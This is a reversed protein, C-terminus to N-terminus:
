VRAACRSGRHSPAAHLPTPGCLEPRASDLPSPRAPPPTRLHGRRERPALMQMSGDDLAAAIMADGHRKRHCSQLRFAVCLDVARLRPWRTESNKSSSSRTATRYSRSIRACGATRCLLYRWVRFSHPTTRTRRRHRLRCPRRRFQLRKARRRWNNSSNRFQRKRHRQLLSWDRFSRATNMKGGVADASSIGYKELTNALIQELSARDIAYTALDSISRTRPLPWRVSSSCFM